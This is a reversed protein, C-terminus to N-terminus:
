NLVSQEVSYGKVDSTVVDIWKLFNSVKTYISYYGPQHCGRAWSVIGTLFSTTQYQTILPSGDYGRCSEQSGATYGACLMNSTINIGSKLECQVSPLLPVALRQLVPSSLEKFSRSVHTNGGLTRRGWGSVSHFRVAALESEALQPTPLCVPVAYPSLKTKCQAKISGFWQGTHGPWLEWPHSEAPCRVGWRVDLDHDGSSLCPMLITNYSVCLGCLCM